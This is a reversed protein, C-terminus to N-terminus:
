SVIGIRLESNRVRKLTYPTRKINKAAAPRKLLVQHVKQKYAPKNMLPVAAPRKKSSARILKVTAIRKNYLPLTAQKLVNVGDRFLESCYQSWQEQPCTLSMVARALVRAHPVQVLTPSYLATNHALLKAIVNISLQLEATALYWEGQNRCWRNLESHFAENGSSGSPLLSLKHRTISHRLRLNNFYWQMRTPATANFLIKRLPAGGVHTRRGLEASFLASLAAM